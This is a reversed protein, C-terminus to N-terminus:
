MCMRDSKKKSRMDLLQDRTMDGDIQETVIKYGGSSNSGSKKTRYTFVGAGGAYTGFAEKPALRERKVRETDAKDATEKAEDRPQKLIEFGTGTILDTSLASSISVSVDSLVMSVLKVEEVLTTPHTVLVADGVSLESMFKTGTGHVTTSSTLLTGTGRRRVLEPEEAGGSDCDRKRKSKKSKKHKKKKDHKDKKRRSSVEEGGKLVLRGSTRAPKASSGGASSSQM